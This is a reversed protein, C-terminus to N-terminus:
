KLITDYIKRLWPKLHKGRHLGITAQADTKKHYRDKSVAHRTLPKKQFMATDVVLPPPAGQLSGRGGNLSRKQRNASRPQSTIVYGFSQRHLGVGRTMEPQQRQLWGYSPGKPGGSLTALLVKGTAAAKILAGRQDDRWYEPTGEVGGGSQTITRQGGWSGDTWVRCPIDASTRM